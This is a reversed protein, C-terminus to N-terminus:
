GSLDKRDAYLDRLIEKGTIGPSLVKKGEM